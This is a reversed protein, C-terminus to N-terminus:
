GTKAFHGAEVGAVLRESLEWLGSAFLDNRAHRSTRALREDAFYGGNHEAAETSTALWLLTRAGREPTRAVLPAVKRQVWAILGPNNLAFGTSVYGPHFCNASGGTPALRRALERTFLINALKSDAYARFGADGKRRTAIDGLDIRGMHHAGSSTSVVRAGPTRQLLPLLEMTLAFYGLHNLAFTRELGETTLSHNMFIAGANNVLIDLRQSHRAFAQGVERAQSMLSLNGLLLAVHPNGTEARLRDRIRETKEHDRGVITVWAGRQALDRAAALGIGETAGTVLVVKGNLEREM